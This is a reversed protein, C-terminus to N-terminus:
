GAPRRGMPLLRRLLGPGRALAVRDPQAVPAVSAVPLARMGLEADSPVPALPTRRRRSLLMYVAPVVFLSLLTGFTLGGVIVAGIDRRSASGPGTALMLPMAGLVMAATTMLIPRLRIVAADLVADMKTRGPDEDRLQNAFETILIGHKTILGILTVFGIGSYLNLSGGALLLAVGAGAISLPAVSLVIVPDRFSEFQAALVLYIFAIALLFVLGMSADATRMQRVMGGWDTRVTPPLLSRALAEIEASVEGLSHGHAIDASITLSRLNDTRPLSAAAVEPTVSAVAGLPVTAGNPGRVHIQALLGPDIRQAADLGLIVPYLTGQWAFRSVEQDGLLKGFVDAVARLQVGLDAARARDVELTYTPSDLALDAAVAHLGPHRQMAEVLPRAAELLEAHELTSKLIFQIPFQGGGGLPNPDIMSVRLGPIASLRPEVAEQMQAVSRSRENWPRMLLFVVGQERSPVGLITMIAAREPVGDELVKEIEAARAQMYDPSADQPGSFMVLAYGQDETPALAGGLRGMTSFGAAGIGVAAALTIWRFRLAVALVRRYAVGLRHFLRELMLAVGRQPRLVRACLMPSLTMAVFGSFLVTVALTFGFERFLAGMMGPLLGIPAFVAALTVTMALVPFALERSSRFAAALPAMGADIHRQANEVEVIADDVVLGIVLVFALLTFTNLSYGMVMLFALGGGLSLPVAILAILSSRVSGLFLLVVLVVLGITIGVTEVVEDVSAQIFIADDYVVQLDVGPPMVARMEPMLARVARSIDVPNAASQRQVGVALAAQGNVRVATDVSRAGVQVDAVDHLHIPDTGERVLIRGFDRPHSLSTRATVSVRRGDSSVQGGPLDVNQAGLAAVVDDVTLGYGALRFRDILVRVAYSREGLLQIGAVGPLGSLLPRLRQEVLDTLELASRSADRVAIHLSAQSDISIQQVVPALTGLPLQAQAQNVQARVTQTAATADVGGRFTITIASLGAVSTSTMMDIGDVQMAAREIPVTVTREMMDPSAGPLTTSITVVPVDFRPLFRVPLQSLAYLGGLLLVLNIVLALVPRRICQDRLNM